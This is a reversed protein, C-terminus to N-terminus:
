YNPHLRLNISFFRVLTPFYNFEYHLSYGFTITLFIWINHKLNPLTLFYRLPSVHPSSLFHLTWFSTTLNYVHCDHCGNTKEKGVNKKEKEFFLFFLYIKWYLIEHKNMKANTITFWSIVKKKTLINWMAKNFLFINIYLGSMKSKTKLDNCKWCM